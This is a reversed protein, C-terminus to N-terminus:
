PADKEKTGHNRSQEALAAADFIEDIAAALDAGIRAAEGGRWELRCDHAALAADDDLSIVDDVGRARLIAALQARVEPPADASLIMRAPARAAAAQLHRAVLDAAAEATQRAAADVCIKQVAGRAIDTLLRIQTAIADRYEDAANEICGGITELTRTMARTEEAALSALAEARGAERAAALDAETIAPAAPAADEAPDLVDFDFPKRSANM